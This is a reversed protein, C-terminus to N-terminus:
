EEKKAVLRLHTGKGHRPGVWRLLKRAERKLTNRLKKIPLATDKWRYGPPVKYRRWVVRMNADMVEERRMGCNACVLTRRSGYWQYYDWEHGLDRCAAFKPNYEESPLKAM